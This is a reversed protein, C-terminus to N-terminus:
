SRWSRRASVDSEPGYMQGLGMRFLVNLMQRNKQIPYDTLEALEHNGLLFHVRDPFRVKLRAVDELIAHVHM